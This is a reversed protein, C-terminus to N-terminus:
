SNRQGGHKHEAIADPWGNRDTSKKHIEERRNGDYCREANGHTICYARQGASPQQPSERAKVGRESM